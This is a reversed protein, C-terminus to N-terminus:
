TATNWKRDEPTDSIFGDIQAIPLPSNGMIGVRVSILFFKNTFDEDGETQLRYERTIVGDEYLTIVPEKENLPMTYRAEFQATTFNSADWAFFAKSDFFISRGDFTVPIANTNGSSGLKIATHHIFDRLSRIGKNHEPKLISAYYDLTIWAKLLEESSASEVKSILHDKSVLNITHETQLITDVFARKFAEGGIEEQEIEPNYWNECTKIKVISIQMVPDLYDLLRLQSERLRLEDPM